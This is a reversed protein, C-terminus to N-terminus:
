FGTVTFSFVPNNPDNTRFTIRAGNLQSPHVGSGPIISFTTQAGANTYCILGHSSGNLDRGGGDIFVARSSASFNDLVLNSQGGNRVVFHIAVVGPIPVQSVTQGNAVPRDPPYQFLLLHPGGAGSGGGIGGGGIGGSGGSSGGSSGGGGSGGSSGGGTNSNVINIHVDFSPQASDNTRLTLTTRYPGQTVRRFVVYLIKRGGRPIIVPFSPSHGSMAGVDDTIKFNTTESLSAGDLRLDGTGENEIYYCLANDTYDARWDKFDVTQGHALRVEYINHYSYYQKVVLGPKAPAVATGSLTFTYAGQTPDNSAITVRGSSPTQSKPSFTVTFTVSEGKKLSRTLPSPSISYDTQNDIGVGTINLPADGDNLITFTKTASDGVTVSGLSVSGANAVVNSGDTVKIQPKAGGFVQKVQDPDLAVNYVKLEDLTMRAFEVQNRSSGIWDMQLDISKQVTGKLEGNVYLKTDTGNAVFSLHTWEGLPAVLGFDEDFGNTTGYAFQTLGIHHPPPPPWWLYQELKIATERGSFLASSTTEADRRLWLAVTYPASRTPITTTVNQAGKTPEFFIANGTRGPVFASRDLTIVEGGPKSTATTGSTEDFSWDLVPNPVTAM